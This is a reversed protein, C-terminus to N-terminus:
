MHLQESQENIVSWFTLLFSHPLRKWQGQPEGVLGVLGVTSFFIKRVMYFEVKDHGLANRWIQQIKFHLCNCIFAIRQKQRGM